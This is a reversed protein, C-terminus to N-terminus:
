LSKQTSEGNMNYSKSKSTNNASYENFKSYFPNTELASENNITNVSNSTDNRIHRSKEVSINLKKTNSMENNTATDESSVSSESTIETIHSKNFDDNHRSLPFM